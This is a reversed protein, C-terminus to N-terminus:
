AAVAAPEGNEQPFFHLIIADALVNAPPPPVQKALVKIIGEVENIQKAAALRIPLGSTTVQGSHKVAKTAIVDAKDTLSSAMDIVFGTAIDDKGQHTTPNEPDSPNVEFGLYELTYRALFAALGQGSLRNYNIGTEASPELTTTM